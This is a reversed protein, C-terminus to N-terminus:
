PQGDRERLKIKAVEVSELLTRGPNDSFSLALKSYLKRAIAKSITKSSPLGLTKELISFMIDLRYPVEDKSISYTAQLHTYLADVVERSFLATMTEDISKVLAENFDKETEPPQV